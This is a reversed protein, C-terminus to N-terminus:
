RLKPKCCPGRFTQKYAPAGWFWGQGPPDAVGGEAQGPGGGNPVCTYDALERKSMSGSTYASFSALRQALAALMAPHQM